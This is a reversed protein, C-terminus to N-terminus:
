HNIPIRWRANDITSFGSVTIIIETIANDAVNVALAVGEFNGAECKILINDYDNPNLIVAKSSCAHQVLPDFYWDVGGTEIRRGLNDIASFNDQSYEIVRQVDGINTLTFYALITKPYFETRTLRLELGGQRWAEGVELITDAPTDTSTPPSIPTDTIPIDTPPSTPVDTAPGPNSCSVQEVAVIDISCRAHFNFNYIQEDGDSSRALVEGTVIRYLKNVTYIYISGNPPTNLKVSEGSQQGIGLTTAVSAEITFQSGVGFAGGSSLTLTLDTSTGASCDTTKEIPIGCNKVEVVESALNEIPDGVTVLEVLSWTSEGGACSSIGLIFAMTLLIYAIHKPFLNKM